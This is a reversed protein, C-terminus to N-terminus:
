PQCTESCPSPFYRNELRVPYVRLYELMQEAEDITTFEVLAQQKKSLFLFRNITGFSECYLRLDAEVCNEPLNRLHVVKSPVTM